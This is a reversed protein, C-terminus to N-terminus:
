FSLIFFFIIFLGLNMFFIFHINVNNFISLIYQYIKVEELYNPDSYDAIPFNSLVSKIFYDDYFWLVYPVFVYFLLLLAIFYFLRKKYEFSNATLM